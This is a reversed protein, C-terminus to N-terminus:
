ARMQVNNIANIWEDNIRSAEQYLGAAKEKDEPVGLGKDYMEAIMRLAAVKNIVDFKKAASARLIELAKEGDQPVGFKGDRFIKAVIWAANNSGVEIAKQLWHLTM